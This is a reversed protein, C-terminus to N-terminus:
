KKAPERKIEPFAALLEAQSKKMEITIPQEENKRLRLKNLLNERAQGTAKDLAKVMETSKTLFADYAVKATKYRNYAKVQLPTPNNENMWETLKKLDIILLETKATESADGTVDDVPLMPENSSERRADDTSTQKSSQRNAEAKRKLEQWKAERELDAKSKRVAVATPCALFNFFLFICVSLLLALKMFGKDIL